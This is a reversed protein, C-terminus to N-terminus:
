LIPPTPLSFRVAVVSNRREDDWYKLYTTALITGDDLLHIGPYGCDCGAYNHLLKIRYSNGREGSKLEGYSGVWAVFHGRTPSYPAMDRFAICLRGDPLQVGQHRDGTLAWPADSPESWTAGEDRSFMMLSRGTRQNERILCCLEDGKPSRFVYPECPDKGEVRCVIKPDSWTFGGDHTVSQLVQLPSHDAGDPGSHFMGLTSGDKLRVVSAFAMVCGFKRGLPPMEKWTRGEDESMVSPMSRALDNRCSMFDDSAEAASRKSQSWIWIRAKGDPAVIRYASPCNVHSAYGKPFRDDIRVWTKGGDASEAAPGCFGGHPTCWVAIIRGGTTRVTTPHGQYDQATGEAIVVDKSKDTSLDVVPFTRAFREAERERAAVSVYSSLIQSSVEVSALTMTSRWPRLGVAGLTRKQCPVSVFTEGDFSLTLVGSKLVLELAFFEGNRVSAPLQREGYQVQSWVGSAFIEGRSGEFGFDGVGTRLMAASKALGEIRLRIRVTADPGEFVKSLWYTNTPNDLVMPMRGGVDILPCEAALGREVYGVALLAILILIRRKM